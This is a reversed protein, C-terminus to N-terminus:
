DNDTTHPLILLTYKLAQLYWTTKIVSKIQSMLEYKSVPVYQMQQTEGGGRPFSYNQFKYKNTGQELM